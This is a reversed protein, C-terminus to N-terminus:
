VNFGYRNKITNAHELENDDTWREMEWNGWLKLNTPDYNIWIGNAPFTQEMENDLTYGTTEKFFDNFKDMLIDTNHNFIVGRIHEKSTTEEEGEDTGQDEEDDEDGEDPRTSKLTEYLQKVEVAKM